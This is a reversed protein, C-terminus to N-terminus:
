VKKDDCWCVCVCCLAIWPLLFFISIAEEFRRHHTASSNSQRICRIGPAAVAVPPILQILPFIAGPTSVRSSACV